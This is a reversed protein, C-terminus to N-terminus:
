RDISEKLRGRGDDLPTEIIDLHLLSIFPFSCEASVTAEKFRQHHKKAKGVAWSGELCHHVVDEMLEYHFSHHHDVYVVDQDIGLCNFFVPCDRLVDQFEQLPMLEEQFWVFTFKLLRLHLIETDDDGVVRHSHVWPTDPRWHCGFWEAMWSVKEYIGLVKGLRSVLPLYHRGVGVEQM